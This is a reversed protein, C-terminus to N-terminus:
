FPFDYKRNQFYVKEKHYFSCGVAPKLDSMVSFVSALIVIEIYREFLISNFCCVTLFNQFTSEVFYLKRRYKSSYKSIHSSRYINITTNM